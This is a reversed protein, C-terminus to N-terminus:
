PLLRSGVALFAAVLTQVGLVIMAAHLPGVSSPASLSLFLSGLTAVGLALATQQSTALVGSGAGAVEVPVDSLVVRILPSMVLGQGAGMVLLPLCLAGASVHPWGVSLTAMLAVLGLLQIAGGAGIVRRGYAAVLRTTLVSAVLFAAGMPVLVFGARLASFGLTGQTLLSYVFMFSGFTAFFPVALLLGTRMSRHRLVSPPVLPTRGRREIRREVVVFGAISLAAVAFLVWSWLPWGTARGETLPLLLGVLTAGLLLTGPVDFGPRRLARTDPVLRSSVALGVLGIPVNVLFIARWGTGALDAAVLVGGLLQGAVAAVGGTAGYWGMARSRSDVDGTAQITSLVQPLMAASAAGQLIRAAVLLPANPALGCLLSAVTFAAMGALFMRRRGYTDGLRGGLVLLVAYSTAYGSVVLELLASSAHLDSSMTPLAVNVIFFDVMPLLVGVLLTILAPIPLPPRPPPVRQAASTVSGPHTGPTTTRGVKEEAQDSLTTSM